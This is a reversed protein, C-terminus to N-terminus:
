AAHFDSSTFEDAPKARADRQSDGIRLIGRRTRTIRPPARTLEVDVEDLRPRPLLREEDEGVARRHKQVAAVAVVRVIELENRAARRRVPEATLPHAPVNLPEDRLTGDVVKHKRVPVAVM